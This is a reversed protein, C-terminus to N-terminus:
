HRQQGCMRVIAFSIRSMLVRAFCAEKNAGGENARREEDVSELNGIHVEEAAKDHGDEGEGACPM